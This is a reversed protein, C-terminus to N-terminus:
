LNKSMSVANEEYGLSRYLNRAIENKGFVNLAVRDLGLRRAESEALEMAARGYGKGRHEEDIEINYIFLAHQFPTDRDCVWLEGVREGDAELVYVLQDPSPARGPFLEDMQAAAMAAAREPEVGADKAMDNAYGDRIRPFWSDFEDNSLPRLSLSMRPVSARGASAGTLTERM